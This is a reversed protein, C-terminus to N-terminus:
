KMTVELVTICHRFRSFGTSFGFVVENSKQVLHKCFVFSQNWTVSRLEVQSVTAVFKTTDAPLIFKTTILLTCSQSTYGSYTNWPTPNWHGRGDSAQLQISLTAVNKVLLLTFLPRLKHVSEMRVRRYLGSKGWTTKYVSICNDSNLYEFVCLKSSGKYSVVSWSMPIPMWFIHGKHVEFSFYFNM